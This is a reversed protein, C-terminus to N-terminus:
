YVMVGLLVDRAAALVESTVSWLRVKRLRPLGRVQRLGLPTVNPGSLHLEELWDYGALQCLGEDSVGSWSLNLSTLSSAIGSASLQSLHVLAADTVASGSIDLVRLRSMRGIAELGADSLKCGDLCLDELWPMDECVCLIGEEGVRVCNSLDLDTVLNCESLDLERLMVLPELCRLGADGVPTYSLDLSDVSTLRGIQLVGETTVGTCGRLHLGSLGPLATAHRLSSGTLSKCSSDSSGFRLSSISSLIPPPLLQALLLFQEFDKNQKEEGAKGGAEGAGGGAAGAGGVGAMKGSVSGTATNIRAGTGAGGTTAVGTASGGASKMGEWKKRLEQVALAREEEPQQQQQWGEQQPVVLASEQQQQGEREGESEVRERCVRELDALQRAHQRQTLELTAAANAKERCMRELVALQRAHQEQQQQQQRQEQHQQREREGESEARERCMRELDALQRAHQRQTLELTAAANAKERCIRELVALQRAHQEQALELAAAAEAKERCVRELVALQQAHQKETLELADMRGMCERSEECACVSVQTSESVVAAAIDAEEGCASASVLPTSELAGVREKHERSEACGRASVETSELVAAADTMVKCARELLAVQRAHEEPTSEVTVAASAKEQCAREECGRAPVETSELVAAADTMVKCAKEMLAVQRAQGEPTSEVTVAAAGAKEKEKERCARELLALQRANEHLSRQLQLLQAQQEQAQARLLEVQASLDQPTELIGQQQPEQPVEQEQACRGEGEVLGGVKAGVEKMMADVRANWEAQQELVGEIRAKLAVLVDIEANRRAQQELVGEIRAKWGVLAEIEVNRGVQQELVGRVRAALAAMVEQVQKLMSDFDAARVALQGVRQVGFEAIRQMGQVRREFRVEQEALQQQVWGREAVAAAAAAAVEGAEAGAGEGETAGEEKGATTGLVAGVAAGREAGASAGAAAAAAAAAGAAGAAAKVAALIAAGEEAQKHAKELAVSAMQQLAEMRWRVKVEQEALQQQVWGRDAVIAAAAEAAATITKPGGPSTLVSAGVSAARPFAAHTVAVAASAASAASAAASTTQAQKLELASIKDALQQITSAVDAAAVDAKHQQEELLKQLHELKKSPENLAAAAVEPQQQQQQVVGAAALEAAILSRIEESKIGSMQDKGGKAIEAAVHAVERGILVVEELCQVEEKRGEQEKVGAAIAAGVSAVERGILVVQELLGSGEEAGESGTGSKAFKVSKSLEAAVKAVVRGVAIVAEIQQQQQQQHSPTATAAVEKSTKNSIEKSIELVVRGVEAAQQGVADIEERLERVSEEVSRELRGVREEVSAEAGKVGEEIGKEAEGVKEMCEEIKRAREGLGGEIKRVREEVSEEVKKLREKLKGEIEKVREEVSGAVEGVREQVGKEELKEVEKVVEELNRVGVMVSEEVRKAREEMGEELKVVKEGVSEELKRVREGVSEEIKKVSEEVKGVIEGMSEEVKRVREGVSEEVRRVTREAEEMLREQGEVQERVRRDVAEIVIKNCKVGTEIRAVMGPVDAGMWLEELQEVKQQSGEIRGDLEQKLGDVKENVIKEVRDVELGAEVRMESVKQLIRSEMDQEGSEVGDLREELRKVRGGLGAARWEERIEEMPGILAENAQAQQVRWEERMQEMQKRVAEKEARLAENAQAQQAQWQERMEEMERRVRAMEELQQAQQQARTEELKRAWQDQVAKIEEELQQRHAAEKILLNVMRDLEAERKRGEGSVAREMEERLDCIKRESDIELRQIGGELRAEEKELLQLLTGKLADGLGPGSCSRGPLKGPLWNEGTASVAAADGLHEAEAILTREVEGAESAGDVVGVATSASVKDLGEGGSPVTGSGRLGKSEVQSDVWNEIAEVTMGGGGFRAEIRGLCARIEPALVGNGNLDLLGGKTQLADTGEGGREGGGGGGGEAGGGETALGLLGRLMEGDDLIKKVERDVDLAMAVTVAM